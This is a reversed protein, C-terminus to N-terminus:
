VIFHHSFTFFACEFHGNELQVYKPNNKLEDERQLVLRSCSAKEEKGKEVLMKWGKKLKRDTV